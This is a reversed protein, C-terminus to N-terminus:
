VPKVEGYKESIDCGIFNRETEECSSLVTFSGACPDLVFDGKNTVAEILRDILEIPKKHPHNKRPMPIKENWVDPISKDKWNKITKPEKQYVLLFESTRRSRYGMGIRGKNWTILDVLNMKSMGEFLKHHKGEALIFKDAWFFLYASPKLVAQIEEIFDSILSDNMQPLEAREKQRAGENGYNMKDMVQRYQVDLFACDISNSDLEKLLSLGDMLLKKNRNEFLFTM